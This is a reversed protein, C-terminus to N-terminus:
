SFWGQLHSLARATEAVIDLDTLKDIGILISIVVITALSSTNMTGSIIGTVTNTTVIKYGDHESDVSM